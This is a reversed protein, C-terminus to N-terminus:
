RGSLRTREGTREDPREETAGDLPTSADVVRRAGIRQNGSADTEVVHEVVTKRTTFQRMGGHPHNECM